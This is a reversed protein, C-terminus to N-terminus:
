IAPILILIVTVMPAIGLVEVPNTRERFIFVSAIFTFVLEIQGLARVHAANEMTFATFWAISAFVGAVGVALALSRVGPHSDQAGAGGSLTGHDRDPHGGRRGPHLRRGSIDVDLAHQEAGETEQSNM